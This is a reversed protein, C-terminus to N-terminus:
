EARARAPALVREARVVTRQDYEGTAASFTGGCTILTIVERESTGVIYALEEQTPSAGFNRPATTVVYKYVTGSLLHIEIADGAVLNRINYFVAPGYDIYDVHGSYVSNGINGPAASFDYWAVNSPGDPSIMENNGDVGKIQIPADVGFKPIMLAAIASPDPTPHTITPTALVADIPGGFTVLTGGDSNGAEGIGGTLNLVILVGAALLSLLGFGLM